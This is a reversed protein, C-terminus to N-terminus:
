LTHSTHLFCSDIFINSYEAMEEAWSLGKLVTCGIEGINTKIYNERRSRLKGLPTNFNGALIEYLNITEIRAVNDVWSM